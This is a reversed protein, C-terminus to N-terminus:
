AAHGECVAVVAVFQEEVITGARRSNDGVVTRVVVIGGIQLAVNYRNQVSGAVGDNLIDVVSPALNNGGGTGHCGGETCMVRQAVAAVYVVSLGREVVELGTIVIGLQASEDIGIGKSGSSM